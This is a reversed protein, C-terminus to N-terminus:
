IDRAHFQNIKFFFFMFNVFKANSHGGGDFCISSNKIKSRTSCFFGQPSPLQKEFKVQLKNSRLDYIMFFRHASLTSLGSVARVVNGNDASLKLAKLASTSVLSLLPLSSALSIYKM